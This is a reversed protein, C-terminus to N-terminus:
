RVIREVRVESPSVIGSFILLRSSVVLLGTIFDPNVKSQMKLSIFVDIGKM